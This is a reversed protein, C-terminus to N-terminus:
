ISQSKLYKQIKLMILPLQKLRFMCGRVWKQIKISKNTKMIYEENDEEIILKMKKVQLKMKKVQPETM